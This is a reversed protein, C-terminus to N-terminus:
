GLNGELEGIAADIMANARKAPLTDAIVARAADIAVDIALDRIREIAATEAQAIRDTALQRRRELSQELRERGQTTLREAEAGAHAIIAEVERDADRQKKQYAALLDQAEERLKEAEDIEGRIKDTRDDLAKTTAKFITKGVLGVFIVFAVLTWFAPTSFM